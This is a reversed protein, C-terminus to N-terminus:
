PANGPVLGRRSRAMALSTSRCRAASRHIARVPTRDDSPHVPGNTRDTPVVPSRARIGAGADAPPGGPQVVVANAPGLPESNEDRDAYFVYLMRSRDLTPFQGFFVMPNGDPDLPWAPTEIWDPQGGFKSRRDPGSPDELLGVMALRPVTRAAVPEYGVARRSRSRETEDPLKRALIAATREALLAAERLHGGRELEICLTLASHRAWGLALTRYPQKSDEIEVAEYMGTVVEVLMERDRGDGIRVLALMAGGGHHTLLGGAGALQYANRLYEVALRRTSEIDRRDGLWALTAQADGRELPALSTLNAFLADIAPRGGINALSARAATRVRQDGDTLARALLDVDNSEGSWGLSRVVAVNVASAPHGLARRLAPAARRDDINGLLRLARQAVSREPSTTAAVRDAVDHADASGDWCATCPLSEQFGSACRPCVNMVVSIPWLEVLSTRPAEHWVWM